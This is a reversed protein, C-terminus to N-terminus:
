RIGKFEVLSLTSRTKNKENAWEERVTWGPVETCRWIKLTDTSPGDNMEVRHTGEFRICKLKEKGVAIEEDIKVAKLSRQATIGRTISYEVRLPIDMGETMWVREERVFAGQQDTKTKWITCAYEKGDITLKEEGAKERIPDCHSCGDLIREKREMMEEGGYENHLLVYGDKSVSKLRREFTFDRSSSEFRVYTGEKWKMWPHRSQDLEQLAFLLYIM